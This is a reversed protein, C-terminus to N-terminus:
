APNVKNLLHRLERRQHETLDGLIRDEAAEVRTDLDTLM